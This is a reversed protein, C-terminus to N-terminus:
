ELSYNNITPNKKTRDSACSISIENITNQQKQTASTPTTERLPPKQREDFDQRYLVTRTLQM